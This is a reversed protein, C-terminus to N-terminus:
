GFEVDGEDNGFEAVAAEEGVGGGGGGEGAVGSKLEPREGVSEGVVVWAGALCEHLNNGGDGVGHDWGELIHHNLFVEQSGGAAAPRGRAEDGVPDQAGDPIEGHLIPNRQDVESGGGGAVEPSEEAVRM